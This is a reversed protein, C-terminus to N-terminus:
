FPCGKGKISLWELDSFNEAEHATALTLHKYGALHLKKAFDEGRMKNEGLDSDLYIKTKDKDIHSKNKDFEECSGLILLRVGTKKARREWVMRQIKDDDICVYDYIDSNTYTPIFIEVITGEKEKSSIQLEGGLEQLIKKAHFLGLGSGSESSKKGYSFGEEGIRELLSPPIGKGNDKISIVVQDDKKDCSIIVEGTDDLAELANNILNSLIRGLEKESFVIIVNSTLNIQSSIKLKQNKKFQTKKELIIAEVFPVITIQSSALSAEINKQSKSYNLLDNAIDNIRHIAHNIIEMGEEQGGEKFDSVGMKLASLPSRIDHSVQLAMAKVKQAVEIEAKYAVLKKEAMLKMALMIGVIAILGLIRFGWLALDFFAPNNSIFQFRYLDGNLSRLQVDFRSGRLSWPSVKCSQSMYRLNLIQTFEPSIKDLVACRISGSTTSDTISRALFNFNSFDLEQRLQAQTSQIIKDGFSSQILVFLGQCCVLYITM